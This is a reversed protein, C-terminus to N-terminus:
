AYPNLRVQEDNRDKRRWRKIALKACEALYGPALRFLQGYTVFFTNISISIDMSIVCHGWHRPIFLTEGPHIITQYPTCFQYNPYQDLDPNEFDVPSITKFEFEGIYLNKSAQDPPFLYVMKRGVIQTLFNPMQDNHIPTFTGKPGIWIYSDMTAGPIHKICGQLYPLGKIDDRLKPFQKRFPRAAMYYMHDPQTLLINILEKLKFQKFYQFKSYGQPSNNGAGRQNPQFTEVLVTEDGYNQGFYSLSWKKMAPWDEVARLIKVPREKKLFHEKFDFVKPKVITEISLFEDYPM